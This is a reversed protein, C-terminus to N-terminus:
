MNSKSEWRKKAEFNFKWKTKKKERQEKRKYEVLLQKCQQAKRKKRNVELDALKQNIETAKSYKKSKIAADLESQLSKEQQDFLPDSKDILDYYMFEALDSSSSSETQPKTNTKNKEM